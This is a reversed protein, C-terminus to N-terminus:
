VLFLPIIIVDRIKRGAQMVSDRRRQKWPIDRLLASRETEPGCDPLPAPWWWRVSLRVCSPKPPEQKWEQGGTPNLTWLVALTIRAFCVSVCKGKGLVKGSRKPCVARWPRFLRAHCPRPWVTRNSTGKHERPKGGDRPHAPCSGSERGM